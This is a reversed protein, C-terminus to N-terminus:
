IFKIKSADYRQLSESLKAHVSEQEPTNEPMM